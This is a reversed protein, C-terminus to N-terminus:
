KRWPGERVVSHLLSGRSEETTADGETDSMGRESVPIHNTDGSSHLEIPLAIISQKNNSHHRAHILLALLIQKIFANM